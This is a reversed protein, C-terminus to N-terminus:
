RTNYLCRSGGVEQFEGGEPTSFHHLASHPGEGKSNFATVTVQYRSYLRLGTVEESTKTGHVVVM